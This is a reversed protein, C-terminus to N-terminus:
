AEAYPSDHEGSLCIVAFGYPKDVWRTILPLHPFGEPCIAVTPGEILYREADEGMGLELEAGLYDLNDPDLGLYCLIEAEPHTHIEGGRHWKGSQTYYGWSFNVEFNAAEEKFLWAISDANGPGMLGVQDLDIHPNLAKAKKTYDPDKLRENLPATQAYKELSRVHEAYKSGKTPAPAVTGVDRSASYEPALGISYHVVPQELELIKVAGHVTGRPITVVTPKDFVHEEREEGLEISMKAGLYAFNKENDIGAFLLVEDFPHVILGEVPHFTGKEKLFGYSFHANFGELEKAGMWARPERYLGDPPAQVLLPKFLHAFEKAKAM